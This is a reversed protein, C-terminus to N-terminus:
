RDDASTPRFPSKSRRKTKRNTDAKGSVNTNIEFHDEEEQNNLISGDAKYFKGDNGLIYPAAPILNADGRGCSL